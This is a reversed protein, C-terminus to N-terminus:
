IEDNQYLEQLKIAAKRKEKTPKPNEQSNSQVQDAEREVCKIELQCISQIPRELHCTTIM